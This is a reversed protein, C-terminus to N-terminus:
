ETVGQLIWLELQVGECSQLVCLLLMRHLITYHLWGFKIFWTTQFSCSVPVSKGFYQFPFMVIHKLQFLEAEHPHDGIDKLKVAM